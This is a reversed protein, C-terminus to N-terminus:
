YASLGLTPGKFPIASIGQEELREILNLLEGTLFWSPPTMEQKRERLHSLTAAPVAERCLSNLGYYLLPSVSHRRAMKLLYDWDLESDVLKRVGAVDTTSRMLCVLLEDERHSFPIM